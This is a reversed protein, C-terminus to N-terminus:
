RYGTCIRCCQRSTTTNELVTSSGPQATKYVNCISCRQRRFAKYCRIRTTSAHLLLRTYWPKARMMLSRVINRIQHYCSKAIQAVHAQMILGSDFIVGLNQVSPKPVVQHGGITVSIDSPLDSRQKSILFIVAESKETNLKHQNKGYWDTVETLCLEIKTIAETIPQNHKVAM